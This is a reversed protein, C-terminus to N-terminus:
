NDSMKKYIMNKTSGHATLLGIDCLRILYRRVTASAKGTLERGKSNDLVAHERLYEILPLMSIKERESLYESM